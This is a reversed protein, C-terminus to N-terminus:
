DIALALDCPKYKSTKCLIKLRILHQFDASFIDQGHRLNLCAWYLYVTESSKFTILTTIIIFVIIVPIVTTIGTPVM